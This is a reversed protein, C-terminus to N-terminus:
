PGHSSNLSEMDDRDNNNYNGEIDINDDDTEQDDSETFIFSKEEEEEPDVVNFVDLVSEIKDELTEVSDNDSSFFSKLSSFLNWDNKSLENEEKSGQDSDTDENDDNGSSSLGLSSLESSLKENHFELQELNENQLETRAVNENNTDLDNGTKTLANKLSYHDDEDMQNLKTFCGLLGACGILIGLSIMTSFGLQVNNQKKNGNDEQFIFNEETLENADISPFLLKQDNSLFVQLPNTKYPLDNISHLSPFRILNIGDYKKNFNTITIINKAPLITYLKKGGGKGSFEFSGDGSIIFNINGRHESYNGEKNITIEQFPTSLSLTPTVSPTSTPFRSTIRLLKTPHKSSIKSAPVPTPKRTPNVTPKRTPAFSPPGTKITPSRTAPKISPIKTPKSTRPARSPLQTAELFPPFTGEKTPENTTQQFTPVNTPFQTKISPISSPSVSPVSSPQATPLFTTTNRPYVMMYNNGKGQWQQYSTIMIDPIGDGNVDGPGAVMFGGGIISFGENETLQSLDLIGSSSNRGYIVYSKQTLYRGSYPISGIIIDDFEDQNIDGLNALSFGAFSFLPATIKFYDKNPILNDILIDQKIIEPHLFVVYMVNQYPSIQIASFLLDSDGDSNFDGASSLALGSSQDNQSGIIKIAQSTTLQDINIDTKINSGFFIYIINSSLASIAM